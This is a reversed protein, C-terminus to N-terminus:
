SHFHGIYTDFFHQLSFCTSKNNITSPSFFMINKDLIETSEHIIM